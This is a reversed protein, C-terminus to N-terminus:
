PSADTAVVCRFGINDAAGGLEWQPLVEGIQDLWSFGPGAYGLYRVLRQNRTGTHVEVRSQRAVSAGPQRRNWRDGFQTTKPARNASSGAGYEAQNHPQNEVAKEAHKTDTSSGRNALANAGRHNTDSDAKRCSCVTDCSLRGSNCGCDLRGNPGRHVCVWLRTCIQIVLASATGHEYQFSLQAHILSSGSGSSRATVCALLHPLRGRVAIELAVALWGSFQEHSPAGVNITIRGPLACIKTARDILFEIESHAHPSLRISDM